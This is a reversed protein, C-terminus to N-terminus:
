VDEDSWEEIIDTGATVKDSSLSSLYYTDCYTETIPFALININWKEVLYERFKFLIEDIEEDELEEADSEVITDLELIMDKEKRTYNVKPYIMIHSKDFYVTVGTDLTFYNMKQCLKNYGSFFRRDITCDLLASNCIDQIESYVPHEEYFVNEMMEAIEHNNNLDVNTLTHFKKNDKIIFLSSRILYKM